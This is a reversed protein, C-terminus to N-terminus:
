EEPYQILKFLFFVPPPFSLSSPFLLPISCLPFLSSSLPFTPLSPPYALLFPLSYQFSPLLPLPHLYSFSRPLSLRGPAQYLSRRCGTFSNQGGLVRRSGLEGWRLCLAQPRTHAGQPAAVETGAQLLGRSQQRLGPWEQSGFGTGVMVNRETSSPVQSTPSEETQELPCTADSLLGRAWHLLQCSPHLSEPHDGCGRSM